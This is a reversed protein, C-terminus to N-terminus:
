RDPDPDLDQEARSPPQRRLYELLADILTQAGEPSLSHGVYYDDVDSAGLVGRGSANVSVEVNTRSDDTVSALNEWDSM